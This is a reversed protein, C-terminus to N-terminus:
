PSAAVVALADDLEGCLDDLAEVGVSIRLLGETIGLAERQERSLARHSTLAPHSITTAVDGLSPALRIGSLARTFAEAAPRGGRLAISLMPGRGRPLLRAAREQGGAESRGPYHVAEVEPRTAFWEALAAANQSAREIRLGATRLGRLALWADFPALNSGVLRAFPDLWDSARHESHVLLVGGLVDSHGGLHKTLSHFVADAGHAFSQFLLPTAFTADVLYAAGCRHAADAIAPVDVVNMLPNTIVETLVVAVDDGLADAMLAAQDVDRAVPLDVTSLRVGLNALPGALLSETGGYCPRLVVVRRRKPELLLLTALLLAAQGSSTVRALPAVAGAPTELGALAAELIAPVGGGYRRYSERTEIGADLADLDAYARVSALNLPPVLDDGRGSRDSGLGARAAKTSPDPSRKV